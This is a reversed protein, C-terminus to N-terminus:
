CNARMTTISRAGMAPWANLLKMHTTMASWCLEIPWMQGTKCSPRPPGNEIASRSERPRM